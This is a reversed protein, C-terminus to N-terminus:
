ALEMISRGAGRKVREALLRRERLKSPPLNSLGVKTSCLSKMM